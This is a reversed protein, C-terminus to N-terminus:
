RWPPSIRRRRIPRGGAAEPRGGKLAAVDIEGHALDGVETITAAPVDDMALAPEGPISVRQSLYMRTQSSTVGEQAVNIRAALAVAAAEDLDDGPDGCAGAVLLVALAAAFVRARSRVSVATGTTQIPM